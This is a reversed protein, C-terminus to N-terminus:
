ENKGETITDTKNSAIKINNKELEYMIFRRLDVENHAQTSPKVKGIVSINMGIVKFETIGFVEPKMIVEDKAQNYFNDCALNIIKFVNDIDEKYDICILASISINGRSHNTVDKITGNPIIYLDGNFARVKTVRLEISEVMGSKEEITVHDGVVYQNEFLIFFGNIVDKILNQSALGITVGGISALTLNVTGFITMIGFFYVVYKLLSQLVASLTKAKKLDTSFMTHQKKLTKEIVKSGIKITAYMLLITIVIQFCDDFFKSINLNVGSLKDLKVSLDTFISTMNIM